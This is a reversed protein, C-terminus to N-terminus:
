KREPWTPFPPKQKWKVYFSNVLTNRHNKFWSEEDPAHVTNKFAETYKNECFELWEYHLVGVPTVLGQCIGCTNHALGHKCNENQKM